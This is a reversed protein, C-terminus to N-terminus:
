KRFRNHSLLIFSLVEEVHGRLEILLICIDVREWQLDILFTLFPVESEYLTSLQIFIDGHYKKRDRVVIVYTLIYLAETCQWVHNLANM